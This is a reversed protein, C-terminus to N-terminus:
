CVKYNCNGGWSCQQCSVNEAELYMCPLPYFSFTTAAATTGASLFRVRSLAAALDPADVMSAANENKNIVAHEGLDMAPAGSALAGAALVLLFFLGAM